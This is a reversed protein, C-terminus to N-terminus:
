WLCRRGSFDTFVLGDNDFNVDLSGGTNYRALTIKMKGSNLSEGVISRVMQKYLSGMSKDMIQKRICMGMAMLTLM